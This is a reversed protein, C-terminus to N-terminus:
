NVISFSYDGPPLMFSPAIGDAKWKVIDVAVADSPQGKIRAYIWAEGFSPRLNKPVEFEHLGALKKMWTPRGSATDMEIPPHIVQIDIANVNKYGFVEVKGVANRLIFPEHNPKKEIAIAYAPHRWSAEHADNMEVQDITLPDIGTRYALIGAMSTTGKETPLPRKRIHDYGAYIFIKSTPVKNLTRKIINDAQVTERFDWQEKSTAADPSITNDDYGIIQWGDAIASRIFNAFTPDNTYYGSTNLVMGNELGSESLAEVALHTFGMKRLEKALVMGFARHVSFHHSENLMVIQRNQAAAVIARIAGDPTATSARKVDGAESYPKAAWLERYRHFASRGGESDGLHILFDGIQAWAYARKSQLAAIVESKSGNAELQALQAEVEVVFQEQLRLEKKWDRQLWPNEAAVSSTLILFSLLLFSFRYM